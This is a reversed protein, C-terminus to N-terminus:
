DWLSKEELNECFSSDSAKLNASSDELILDIYKKLREKEGYPLPVPVYIYARKQNVLNIEYKELGEASHINNVITFNNNNISKEQQKYNRKYETNEGEDVETDENQLNAINDEISTSDQDIFDDEINIYRNPNIIGAYEASELFIKAASEAVDQLIGYKPNLHLERSLKDLQPLQRDKYEEIIQQYLNPQQVSQKRANKLKASDESHLVNIWKEELSISCNGDYNVLGFNKAAAKLSKYSGNKANSYGVAKAIIDQDCNRAGNEFVKQALEEAKQLNVRPYASSRGKTKISKPVNVSANTM